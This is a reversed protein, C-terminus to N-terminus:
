KFEVNKNLFSDKTKIAICRSADYIPIIDFELGDILYKSYEKLPKDKNLKLVAYDGVRFESLVTYM